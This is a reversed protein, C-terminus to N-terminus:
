FEVGLDSLSPLMSVMGSAFAILLAMALLIIGGVPIAVVKLARGTSFRHTERLGVVLLVLSWVFVVLGTLGKILSVTSEGPDVLALLGDVPLVLIVPLGALGYVALTDRPGGKGDLLQAVLHLVAGYGLWKVYWFLFGAMALFPALGTVMQGLGAGLASLDIARLTFVGMLQVAGNVFTVIFFVMLLPPDERLQGFMRIPSFLIGYIIELFGPREM